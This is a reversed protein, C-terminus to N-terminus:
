VIDEYYKSVDCFFRIKNVYLIGDSRIEIRGPYDRSNADLVFVPTYRNIPHMEASKYHNSILSLEFPGPSGIGGVFKIEVQQNPATTTVDLDIRLAMKGGPSMQTFDFQQTTPDWTRTIAGLPFDASILDLGDNPLPVYISDGAVEFPTSNHQADGYVYLGVIQKPSEWETDFDTASKKSLHQGTLGGSPIGVGDLGPDGKSGQPGIEIVEIIETM